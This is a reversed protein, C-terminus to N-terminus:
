NNSLQLLLFVKDTKSKRSENINLKFPHTQDPNSVLFLAMLLAWIDIKKMEDIGAFELLEEQILIEPAMFATSDRTIFRTHTNGTVMDTQAFTSRAKGLDGLKCVVPQEQFVANLRSAKLSSYYHNNVLVNSPKIDRHIKNNSSPLM